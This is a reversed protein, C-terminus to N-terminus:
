VEDAGIMSHLYFFVVFPLHNKLSSVIIKFILYHKKPMKVGRSTKLTINVLNQGLFKINKDNDVQTIDQNVSLIFALPIHIGYM